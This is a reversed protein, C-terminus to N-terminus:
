KCYCVFNIQILPLIGCPENKIPVLKLQLGEILTGLLLSNTKYMQNKQGFLYAIKQKKNTKKEEVISEKERPFYVRDVRTLVEAFLWLIACIIFSEDLNKM